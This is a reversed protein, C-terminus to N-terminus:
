FYYKKSILEYLGIYLVSELEIFTFHKFYNILQTKTSAAIDTGFLRANKSYCVIRINIKTILIIMM